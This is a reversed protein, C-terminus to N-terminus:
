KNLAALEARWRQARKSDRLLRDGWNKQLARLALRHMPSDIEREPLTLVFRELIAAASRLRNKDPAFSPDSRTTFWQVKVTNAAEIMDIAALVPDQPTVITCWRERNRQIVEHTGPHLEDDSVLWFALLFERMMTDVEQGRGEALLDNVQNTLSEIRFTWALQDFQKRGIFTAASVAEMHWLYM